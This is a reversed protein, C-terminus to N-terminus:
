ITFQKGCRKCTHWYFHWPEGAVGDMYDHYDRKGKSAECVAGDSLHLFALLHIWAARMVADESLAKVWVPGQATAQSNHAQRVPRLRSLLQILMAGANEGFRALALDQHYAHFQLEHTRPITRPM